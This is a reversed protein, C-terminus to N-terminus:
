TAPAAAHVVGKRRSRRAMKWIIWLLLIWPAVFCLGVVLMQASWRLGRGSVALGNRIADWTTEEGGLSAASNSFTVDIRARALPGDPVTNDFAVQKSRRYGMREVEDIIPGAKNLPIEVVVQATVHGAHDQSMGGAGIRRGGASVAASVLDDVAHEVDPVEEGFTTTQRPALRQASLLSLTLRVKSDVTNQTDPSRNVTRTLVQSAKDIAATVTPGAARPMEFAITGTVDQANQESLDSQLVRGDAARVANLIDNFAQPVDRAALQLSQTERPPIAALSVVSLRFRRKAETVDATDPNENSEQQMVEGFGRLADLLADAKETPVQVDLDGAQTNPDPKNLASTVVRGGASRVQDIVQQFVRDVQPVALKMTTTRRPAINALNYIQMSLVTDERQVHIVDAPVTAGNQTTQKQERAFHAIRGDLQRVRAIVQEAADPPIAAVVTAGFQGADYQKLESQRIRGKAAKIAELTKNYADDVKETELSMTVQETESATAPTRIDKEYL